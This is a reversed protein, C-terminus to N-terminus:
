AAGRRPRRTTGPEHPQASKPAPATGATSSPAATRCRYTIGARGRGAVDVAGTHRLVYAVKQAFWRPREILEALRATDWSVDSDRAVDTDPTVDSDRTMAEARTVKRNRTTSGSDRSPRGDPPHSGQWPILSLLDAPQRIEVSGLVEELAVDEVRYDAHWRRRRRAPVRTQEVQVSVVEITLNPHPFLRTFYILDEFVDVAAGRKPSMRRSAVPGGSKKLRRIRTRTVVPKVVRVRHRELLARIKDRIASLSACQVEILEDDRVADIRYRGVTVEVDSPRGAYRHKLQRHLSTEM